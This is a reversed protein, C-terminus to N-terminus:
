TTEAGDQFKQAPHFTPSPPMQWASILSSFRHFPDNYAHHDPENGQEDAADLEARRPLDDTHNIAVGFKLDLVQSPPLAPHISFRDQLVNTIFGM